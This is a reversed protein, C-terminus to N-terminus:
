ANENIKRKQELFLLLTHVTWEMDFLIAKLRGVLFHYAAYSLISCTLGLFTLSLASVIYPSLSTVSTYAELSGLTWFGKLLAFVTGILGLLPSLQAIVRISDIHKRLIPLELLAQKKLEETLIAMPEQLYVLAIKVIHAVPGPTEECLTIAELRRGKHLLNQIGNLFPEPKIHGKHLYILREFFFLCSLFGMLALPYLFYGAQKFLGIMTMYLTTIRENAPSFSKQTFIKL